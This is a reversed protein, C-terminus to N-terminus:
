LTPEPLIFQDGLVKDFEKPQYSSLGGGPYFTLEAVYLKDDTDFFDVRVFPFDKSLVKSIRLMEEFHPPQPIAGNKHKGYRVDMKIWDMNYFSLDYDETNEGDKFHDMAAYTCYPEGNFCFFKYDYLQEGLWQVYQEAIIRPTANHYARCYSDILTNKVKFWTKLERFLQKTDVLTKDKIIKINKGDSQLTSKLVFTNPLSDWAKEFSRIDTWAGYYPVVFGDGLKETIYGKFLFKDVAREMAETRYNVKYWQLKETFYVPADMNLESGHYAQYSRKLNETLKEKTWQNKPPELAACVRRYAREIKNKIM